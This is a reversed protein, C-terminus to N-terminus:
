DDLSDAGEDAPLSCIVDGPEVRQSIETSFVLAYRGPGPQHFDLSELTGRYATGDRKRLEVPQGVAFDGVAQGVTFPNPQFSVPFLGEVHFESM